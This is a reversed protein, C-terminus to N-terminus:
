IKSSKNIPVRDYVSYFSAADSNFSKLDLLTGPMKIISYILNDILLFPWCVCVEKTTDLVYILPLYEISVPRLPYGLINLAVRGAIGAKDRPHHFRCTAGFKCTGTKL